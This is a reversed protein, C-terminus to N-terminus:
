PTRCGTSVKGGAAGWSTLTSYYRLLSLFLFVVMLVDMSGGGGSKKKPAANVTVTLMYRQSDLEGDSVVVGVQLNGVIGPNPTIINDVRRYNAGDQVSITMDAPNNDPDDIHVDQVSITLATSEQTAPPNQGTIVPADNVDVINGTGYARNPDHHFLLWPATSAWVEPDRFGAEPWRLESWEGDHYLLSDEYGLETIQPYPDEGFTELAPGWWGCGLGPISCDVKDERYTHEWALDWAADCYNWLYVASKWQPPAGDDMKDTHNAYYLQKQAHGGQDVDHTINCSLNAFDTFWQCGPGTKGDPCPYGPLCSWAFLGLRGSDM